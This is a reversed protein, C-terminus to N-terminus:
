RSYKEYLYMNGTLSMPIIQAEENRIANAIGTVNAVQDTDGM